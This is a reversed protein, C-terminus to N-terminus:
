GKYLDGSKMVFSVHELLTVHHLPDGVVGILDAMLGPKIEGRDSLAMMESANITATQIAEIPTLGLRVLASLEKANQGHPFVPTDTGLAIKVHAEIAKKLNAKVRPRLYDAKKQIDEPMFSLHSTGDLVYATPVLFTGHEKMLRISEESLLSGHEISRVGAKIAANIGKTGHAHAAVFVHHRAAEDVIAKLEEFSYQQGGVTKEHSLVGATAAVKIVQAGHQIQYRVAKVVENVGDAIGVRYDEHLLGPRYNDMDMHGGTISLAHGAPIIHPAVILKNESAKSLAVDIFTLGPYVQGLARVTTFGAYLLKRANVVGILTSRAADTKVMDLEYGPKLIFPLHVHMDMLGPLVTLNPREIVLAGEPLSKPNISLIKKDEILLNCPSVYEGKRVDLYRKAKIVKVRGQSSFALMISLILVMWKKILEIGQRISNFISLYM